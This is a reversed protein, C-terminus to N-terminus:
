RIALHVNGLRTIANDKSAQCEKHSAKAILNSIREQRDQELLQLNERVRDAAAKNNHPNDKPQSLPQAPPQSREKVVPLGPLALKNEIIYLAVLSLRATRRAFHHQYRLFQADENPSEDKFEDYPRQRLQETPIILSNCATQISPHTYNCKKMAKLVRKLKSPPVANM